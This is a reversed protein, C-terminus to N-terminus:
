RGCFDSRFVFKMCDAFTAIVEVEVNFNPDSDAPGNDNAGDAEQSVSQEFVDCDESL